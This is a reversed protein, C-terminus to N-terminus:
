NTGNIFERMGEVTTLHGNSRLGMGLTIAVHDKTFNRKSLDSLFSAFAGTVDGQDCYKLARIKIDALYQARENEELQQKELDGYMNLMDNGQNYYHDNM